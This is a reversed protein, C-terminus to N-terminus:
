AIDDGAAPARGRKVSLWWILYGLAAPVVGFMLGLVVSVMRYDEGGSVTSFLVAGFNFLACGGGFLMLLGGIIAFVWGLPTLPPKGGEPPPTQTM